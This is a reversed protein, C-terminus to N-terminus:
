AALDLVADTLRATGLRVVADRVSQVRCRPALFASNALRIVREALTPDSEIISVIKATPTGPNRLSDICELLFGNSM